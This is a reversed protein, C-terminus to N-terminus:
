HWFRSALAAAIGSVIGSMAGWARATAKLDAVDVGTLRQHEEVKDIRVCADTAKCPQRCVIESLHTQREVLLRLTDSLIDLKATVEGRWRDHDSTELPM